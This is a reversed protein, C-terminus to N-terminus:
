LVGPVLVGEFLLVARGGVRVDAPAGSAGGVEVFITSPRRIEEGQAVTVRGPEAGEFVRLAGLAGAAVGTAPDEAIGMRPAFMRMAVETDGGADSSPDSGKASM